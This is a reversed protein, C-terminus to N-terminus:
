RFPCVGDKLVTTDSSVQVVVTILEQRELEDFRQLADKIDDNM